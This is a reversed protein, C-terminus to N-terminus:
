EKFTFPKRSTVLMVALWRTIVGFMVVLISIWITDSGIKNMDVAAGMSGFLFPM